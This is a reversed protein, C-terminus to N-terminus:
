MMLSLLKPADAVATTESTCRVCRRLGASMENAGVASTHDLTHPQLTNSEQKELSRESSTTKPGPALTPLAHVCGKKERKSLPETSKFTIQVNLSCEVIGNVPPSPPTVQNNM